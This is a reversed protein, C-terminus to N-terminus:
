PLVDAFAALTSTLRHSQAAAGCSNHLLNLLGYLEGPRRLEHHKIKFSSGAPSRQPVLARKSGATQTWIKM